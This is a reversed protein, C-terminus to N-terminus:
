SRTGGARPKKMADSSVRQAVATRIREFLERDPGVVDARPAEGFDYAAFPDMLGRDADEEAYRPVCHAHLAPVQNCLILYNIRAAGTAELVADGLLAFDALFVTRSEIDMDNLSSPTPDPLLMCCGRVKQPQQNSYIAYGSRMTGLLQPDEGRKIRAIRNEIPNLVPM